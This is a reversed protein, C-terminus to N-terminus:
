CPQTRAGPPRFLGRVRRRFSRRCPPYTERSSSVLPQAPVSPSPIRAEEMLAAQAATLSRKTRESAHPPVVIAGLPGTGTVQPRAARPAAPRPDAAWPQETAFPARPSPCFHPSQPPPFLRQRVPDYTTGYGAAQAAM